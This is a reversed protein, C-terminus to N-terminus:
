SVPAESGNKVDYGPLFLSNVLTENDGDVVYISQRHILPADVVMELMHRYTAAPGYSDAETGGTSEYVASTRGNLGTDDPLTMVEGTVHDTHTLVGGSSEGTAVISGSSDKSQTIARVLEGDSGLVM